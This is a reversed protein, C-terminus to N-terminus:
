HAEGGPAIAHFAARYKHAGETIVCLV